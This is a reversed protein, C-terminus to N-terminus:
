LELRQSRLKQSRTSIFSEQCLFEIFSSRFGGLTENIATPLRKTVLSELGVDCHVCLLSARDYPWVNM